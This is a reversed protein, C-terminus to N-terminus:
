NGLILNVLMVVDLVNLSGDGNVDVCVDWECGLLICNVMQVVDLVNIVTDENFDGLVCSPNGGEAIWTRILQIQSTSLAPAYVPMAPIDDSTGEIAQVLLSNDPDYPIFLPGSNGGAVVNDYSTLSLGGSIGHCSTCHANFIPQIDTDYNVDTISEMVVTSISTTYVEDGYNSYAGNSAVGAAYFNIEGEYVDPATWDMLWSASGTQNYFTGASRQKIYDIGNSTGSTTNINDTVNFSGGQSQNDRKAAIEFGWRILTPHSVMVEVTYTQGPNVVSPIGLIEVSGDGSNLDYSSHCDLCTGEGPAGTKANPPNDPFANLLSLIAINCLLNKM